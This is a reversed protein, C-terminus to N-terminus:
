WAVSSSSRRRIRSAPKMGLCRIREVPSSGSNAIRKIGPCVLCVMTKRTQWAACRSRTQISKVSGLAAGLEPYQFKYGSEETARPLVRQSSLMVEAMEGFMLKLAFKPVPM